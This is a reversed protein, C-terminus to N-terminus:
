NGWNPAISAPRETPAHFVQLDYQGTSRDEYSTVCIRMRGPGPVPVALASWSRDDNYDDNQYGLGDATRVRVIPDFSSSRVSVFAVGPGEVNVDYWDEYRAIDRESRESLQYSGNANAPRQTQARLVTITFQGGNQGHYDRIGIELETGAQAEMVAMSNYGEGYDDNEVVENTRKNRLSLVTDFDSSEARILYLGAAPISYDISMPSGANLQLPLQRLVQPGRAVQTELRYNGTEGVNYSTAVLEVTGAQSVEFFLNEPDDAQYEQGGPAQARLVMDFNGDSLNALVFDGSQVPVSYRNMYRTAGGAGAQLSAQRAFLPATESFSKCSLDYAGTAGQYGSVEVTASGGVSSRAVLLSHRQDGNQDDNEATSGDPLTARLLTDYDGSIACYLWDGANMGVSVQDPARGTERATGPVCAGLLLLAAVSIARSHVKRINM